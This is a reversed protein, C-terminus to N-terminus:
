IETLGSIEPHFPEPAGLRGAIAGFQKGSGTRAFSAFFFKGSIVDNESSTMKQSSTMEPEGMKTLAVKAATLVKFLSPSPQLPSGSAVLRNEPSQDWQPSQQVWKPNQCDTPHWLHAPGTM